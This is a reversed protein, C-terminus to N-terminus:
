EESEEKIKKLTKRLIKNERLIDGYYELYEVDSFKYFTKESKEGELTDTTKELIGMNEALKLAKRIDYSQNGVSKNTYVQIETEEAREDDNLLFSIVKLYDELPEINDDKKESRERDFLREIHKRMFESEDPIKKDQEVIEVFHKLKLPTKLCRFVINNDEFSDIM